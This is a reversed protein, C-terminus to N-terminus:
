WLLMFNMVGVIAKFVTVMFLGVVLGNLLVVSTTLFQAAAQEQQFARADLAEVWGALAATFGARSRAANDLRWRFEGKDDLRALAESLKRGASLDALVRRARAIFFRNATSDAALQVASAEPVSADLLLGLMASFDRKMRTRCWPLRCYIWDGIPFVGAEIWKVAQPGGVYAFACIWLALCIGLPVLLFPGTGSLASFDPHPGGEAAYGEFAQTLKPLLLRQFMFTLAPAIPLLFIVMLVAYSKAARVHSSGDALLKRCAPLVKRMDGISEGVRLMALVPPPLLRPVKALADGLRYGSQLYTAVLHFRAGLSNDRSNSISSVVDEPTRNLKFGTELLFLFFRAREQRRLPLSVLFYIGLVLLALPILICVSWVFAGVVAPAFDLFVSDATTGAGFYGLAALM